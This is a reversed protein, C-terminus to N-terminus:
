IVNKYIVYCAISLSLKRFPRQYRLEFFRIIFQGLIYLHKTLLYHYFLIKNMVLFVAFFQFIGGPLSSSYTNNRTIPMSIYTELRSACFIKKRRRIACLGLFEHLFTNIGKYTKENWHCLFSIFTTDISRFGWGLNLNLYIKQHLHRKLKSAM